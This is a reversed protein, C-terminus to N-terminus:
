PVIGHPHKLLGMHVGPNHKLFRVFADVDIEFITADTQAQM